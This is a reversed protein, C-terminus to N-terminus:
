ASAAKKLKVFAEPVAIKSDFMACGLYKFSNTDIDFGSVININESLNGIIKKLDGLYAEGRPICEDLMVPFGYVYYNRGEVTVISNKSNDQLPMFEAFLTKKSMLFKANPDYSGPLLGILDQVNKTTTSANVAVTVSNDAGWTAAKEIGTPENTGTGNILYGSIKEAVKEAIMDTLWSEFADISMTSVTKSVRVLKTIEYSSLTVPVLNDETVTIPANEEHKSADAKAGEVAFTVNGAVQLLTIENLLPALQKLKKIIENATQTPIAAGASNQASSFARTEESSLELGRINKLFASRYLAKGDDTKRGEIASNGFMNPTVDTGAGAGIMELTKKRTEEAKQLTSREQILKDTEGNLAEIDAGEADLEQRIAALRMEIEQLRKM